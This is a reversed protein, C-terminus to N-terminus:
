RQELELAWMIAAVAQDKADASASLGTMTGLRDAQSRNQIM